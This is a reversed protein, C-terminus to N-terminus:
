RWCSTILATKAECQALLKDATIPRKLLRGGVAEGSDFEAVYRDDECIIRLGWEEFVITRLLVGYPLRHCVGQGNIPTLKAYGLIRDWRSPTPVDAAMSSPLM